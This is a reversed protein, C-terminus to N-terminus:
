DVVLQHIADLMAQHEPIYWPGLGAIVMHEERWQNPAPPDGLRHRRQAVEVMSAKLERVFEKKEGQIRGDARDKEPRGEWRELVSPHLAKRPLPNEFKTPWKIVVEDFALWVLLPLDVPTGQYTRVALEVRLLVRKIQRMSLASSPALEAAVEAARRVSFEAGDGFPVVPEPLLALALARAAEGIKEAPTPLKLRMDVFKDLYPERATQDEEEKQWGVFRHAAVRELHDSNVMLVFVYGRRDFVLKMAELLTIAYDPHCRDLEDILVVVRGQENGNTFALRLADLQAPMEKRAKEAELQAAILDSALKSIGKGFGAVASKLIESDDQDAIRGEAADILDEAGQRLVAKAIVRAAVGSYKLGARKAKEFGTAEDKGLAGVLAGIFTVVPDGSHDSQRADIEVVVEGAIRLEEAWNERFFTKGRGFGAEISIVKAGQQDASLSQVLKTFTAGIESFGLLDSNWIRQEQTM